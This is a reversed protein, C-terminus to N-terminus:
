RPNPFPLAVAKGLSGLRDIAILRSAHAPIQFSISDTELSIEEVVTDLHTESFEWLTAKQPINSAPISAAVTRASSSSNLVLLYLTGQENRTAIAMLDPHTNTIALVDRGGQLACIGMRFAYYSLRRNGSANVLGEFGEHSGWDDLSSLHNSRGWDYLSFIHSGEVYIDGPQSMRMLNKIPNLSVSLDSYGGTYTGWEGLWLPSREHITASM